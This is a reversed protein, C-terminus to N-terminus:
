VTRRESTSMFTLASMWSDLDVVRYRVARRSYRIFPPGGGTCRLKELTASALGTYHSAERTDLANHRHIPRSPEHITTAFENQLKQEM